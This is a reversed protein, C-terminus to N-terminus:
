YIVDFFGMLPNGGTAVPNCLWDKSSISSPPIRLIWPEGYSRSQLTHHTNKERIEVRHTHKNKKGLPRLHQTSVSKDVPQEQNLKTLPWKDVSLLKILVHPDLVSRSTKWVCNPRERLRRSLSIKWSRSLRCHFFSTVPATTSQQLLM